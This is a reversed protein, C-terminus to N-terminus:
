KAFGALLKRAREVHAAPVCIRPPGTINNYGTGIRGLGFLDQVGEAETVYRIGTRDLTAKALAFLGPDGSEFVSFLDDGAGAFYKSGVGPPVSRDNDPSREDALILRRVLLAILLGAAVIFLLANLSMLPLRKPGGLPDRKLQPRLALPRLSSSCWVVLSALSAVCNADNKAAVGQM